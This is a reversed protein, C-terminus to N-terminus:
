IHILSLKVGEALEEKNVNSVDISEDNTKVQAKGCSFMSLAVMVFVLSLVRKKITIIYDKRM